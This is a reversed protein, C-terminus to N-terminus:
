NEKKSGGSSDLESLIKQNGIDKLHKITSLFNDLINSYQTYKIKHKECVQKVIPHIMPYHVHSMRPFLHHEIQYNLGGTFFGAVRGGYTSSTIIQDVHWDSTFDVKETVEFNHSILFLFALIFGEVFVVALFKLLIIFLYVKLGLYLQVIAPLVLVRLFFFLRLGITLLRAELAHQNTHYKDYHQMKFLTNLRLASTLAYFKLLFMYFLHQFAHVSTIKKSKPHFVLYPEASTVDNDKEIENTYAHHSLVHQLLWM